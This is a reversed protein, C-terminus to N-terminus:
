SERHCAVRHGQVRETLEPIIRSCIDLAVPCRPHFACGPPPNMPSPIDGGLPRRQQVRRPDPIPVAALLAKTYPHRPDQFLQDRRATEVIKGLYMVAIRDSVHGVVGLDHSIFLYTLDFEDQLGTLLNLIQAQISVDLASVPEDAIILDPNVSIARAIGIRQRQGGSFEHPYRGMQEETLGVTKMLEAVRRKRENGAVIGHIGLAEGVTAGASMRPNLSSYPDQFILQVRKRFGKLGSGSLNMIDQGDFRMVGSTPTELRALIRGLTTKGCGSEGVLGLTEGRMIQLTVGDLAKVTGQRRSLFGGSIPFYKKINVMDVLVEAATPDM